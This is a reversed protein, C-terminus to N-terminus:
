SGSTELISGPELRHLTTRPPHAGPSGEVKDEEVSNPQFEVIFGNNKRKGGGGLTEEIEEGGERWIIYLRM